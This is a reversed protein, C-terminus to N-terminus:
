TTAKKEAHGPPAPSIMRREAQDRPARGPKAASQRTERREAFGTDTDNHTYVRIDQDSDKM